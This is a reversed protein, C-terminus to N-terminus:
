YSDVQVFACWSFPDADCALRNVFRHDFNGIDWDVVLKLDHSFVLTLDNERLLTVQTHTESSKSLANSAALPTGESYEMRGLNADYSLIM